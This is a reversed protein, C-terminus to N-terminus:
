CTIVLASLLGLRPLSRNVRLKNLKPCGRLALSLPQKSNHQWSKVVQHSQKPYFSCSKDWEEATSPEQRSQNIPNFCVSQPPLSALLCAHLEVPSLCLTTCHLSGACCGCRPADSRGPCAETPAACWPCWWPVCRPSFGRGHERTRSEEEPNTHSWKNQTQVQRIKSESWTSAFDQFFGWTFETWPGRCLARCIPCAPM